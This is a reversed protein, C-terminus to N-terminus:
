LSYLLNRQSGHQRRWAGTVGRAGIDHTVDRAHCLCSSSHYSAYMYISRVVWWRTAGSSM